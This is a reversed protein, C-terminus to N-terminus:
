AAEAIALTTQKQAAAIISMVVDFNTVLGNPFAVALRMSASASNNLLQREHQAAYSGLIESKKSKRDDKMKAAAARLLTTAHM